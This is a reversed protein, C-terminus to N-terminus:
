KKMNSEKQLFYQEYKLWLTKSEDVEEVIVEGERFDSQRKIKSKVNCIFRLVYGTVRLLAGLSSFRCCNIVEGVVVVKGCKAVVSM